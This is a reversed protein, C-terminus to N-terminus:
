STVYAYTLRTEVPANQGNTDSVPEPPPIVNSKENTLDIIKGLIHARSVRKISVSPAM